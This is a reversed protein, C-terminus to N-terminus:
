AKEMELLVRAKEFLQRYFDLSEPLEKQFCQALGDWNQDQILSNVKELCQNLQQHGKELVPFDGLTTSTLHFVNQKMNELANIGDQVDSLRGIADSNGGSIANGFAPLAQQFRDLYGGLNALLELSFPVVGQFGLVIKEGGELQAPYLKEVDEPSIDKGNISLAVLVHNEPHFADLLAKFNEFTSEDIQQTQQNVTLTILPRV